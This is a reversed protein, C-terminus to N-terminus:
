ENKVECYTEAARKLWISFKITEETLNWLEMSTLKENVLYSQFFTKPDFHKDIDSFEIKLHDLLATGTLKKGDEDEMNKVIFAWTALLGNTQLM